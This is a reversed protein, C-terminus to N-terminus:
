DNCGKNDLEMMKLAAQQNKIEKEMYPTCIELLEGWYSSREKATINTDQNIWISPFKGVQLNMQEQNRDWQTGPLVSAMSLQINNVSNGAYRYRDKFWQKTFEYDNRTETPNGTMILLTIPIQYKQSMELHYDIAANSFNKGMGRRVHEVVSEVGLLLIGNSKKIKQFIEEPHQNTERIIFYGRWSIQQDVPKNHNYDGILDLLKKFEKMNGNTLSNRMSFDSIRYRDIQTLMENFVSEASRYVYKKWHEIIDCFECARVCGRSDTIPILKKEYDVFNYDDFDPFAFQDLELPQVWNMSDIGPYNFNGKLFEVLAVEGDGTIYHDALGLSTIYECFTNNGSAIFNKIGSGGIVVKVDPAVSKLKVLLWIAFIQSTYTLLSLGVIKSNFSLIRDVSYDILNAVDDALEPQEEAYSFFDVLATERPHTKVQNVIEINLDLAAARFGHQVAVSKLLAPAFVPEDTDTYPVSVFIIDNM